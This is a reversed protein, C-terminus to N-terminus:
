GVLVARVTSAHWKAGGHATPVREENLREAIARYTKGEDRELSGCGFTM